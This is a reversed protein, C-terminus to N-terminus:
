LSLLLNFYILKGGEGIARIILLKGNSIFRVKITPFPPFLAHVNRSSTADFPSLIGNHYEDTEHSQDLPNWFTSLTRERLVTLAILQAVITDDPYSNVCATLDQHEPIITLAWM